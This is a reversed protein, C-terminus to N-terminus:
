NKLLNYTKTLKKGLSPYDIRINKMNYLGTHLIETHSEKENVRDIIKKYKDLFHKKIFTYFPIFTSPLNKQLVMRNIAVQYNQYEIIKHYTEFDRHRETIGPENLLSKNHFLTVLTLLISSITQCATWGEGKWTNIISLCVKGNRYLNPHFRVNNGTTKFKLKPPSYPYDTPFDFEFLFIGDEYITDSPGIIMAYGKLINIEDHVYYIGHETLPNKIIYKIDQVLRRQTERTIIINKGTEQTKLTNSM